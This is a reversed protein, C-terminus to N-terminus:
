KECIFSYHRGPRSDFLGALKLTASFVIEMHLLYKVVPSLVRYRGIRKSFEYRLSERTHPSYNIPSDLPGIQRVVRLGSDLLASRYQRLMFAHEGGYLHHLPHVALFDPLDELRSIVHERVAILLGGPKLIRAM